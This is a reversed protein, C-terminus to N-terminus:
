ARTWRTRDLYKKVRRMNNGGDFGDNFQFMRLCSPAIAIRLFGVRM